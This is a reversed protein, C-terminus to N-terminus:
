VCMCAHCQQALPYIAVFAKGGVRNNLRRSTNTNVLIAKGSIFFFLFIFFVLIAKGVPNKAGLIARNEKKAGVLGPPACARLM